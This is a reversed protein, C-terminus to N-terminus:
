IVSMSVLDSFVLIIEYTFATKAKQLSYNPLLWLDNAKFLTYIEVTLLRRPNDETKLTKPSEVHSQTDVQFGKVPFFYKLCIAIMHGMFILLMARHIFGCSKM